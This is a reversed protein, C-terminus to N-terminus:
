GHAADKSWINGVMSLFGRCLRMRNPDVTTSGPKTPYAFGHGEGPSLPVGKHCYFSGGRKLTGMLDRWKEGDQQEPSGPRFACNNCPETFAPFRDGTKALQEAEFPEWVTKCNRCGELEGAYFRTADPPLTFRDVARSGCRPCIGAGRLSPATM